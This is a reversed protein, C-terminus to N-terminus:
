LRPFLTAYGGLLEDNRRQPLLNDVDLRFLAGKAILTRTEATVTGPIDSNALDILSLLKARAVGPTGAGTLPGIDFQPAGYSWGSTGGPALSISYIASSSAEVKSFVSALLTKQRVEEATGTYNM